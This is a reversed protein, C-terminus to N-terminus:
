RPNTAAANLTAKGFVPGAAPQAAPDADLELRWNNASVQPRPPDDFVTASM